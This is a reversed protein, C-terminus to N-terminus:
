KTYIPFTPSDDVIGNMGNKNRALLFYGGMGWGESWSNKAIWYAKGNSLTGYGVILVVHNLSWPKTKPVEFVGSSYYFFNDYNADFYVSVPGILAVAQQLAAETTQVKRWGSLKYAPTPSATCTAEIATTPYTAETDLGRDMAYQYAPEPYGGICGWNGEEEDQNCDILNQASLEVVSKNTVKAIQAEIADVAALAWCSGCPDQDEVRGVIGKATWNIATPLLSTKVTNKYLPSGEQRKTRPESSSTSPRRYGRLRALEEPTKDALHNIALLYDQDNSLKGLNIWTIAPM